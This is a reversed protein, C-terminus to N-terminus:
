RRRFSLRLNTKVDTVGPIKPEERGAEQALDYQEKVWANFTASHISAMDDFRGIEKLHNFCTIKDEGQPLKATFIHSVSILGAPAKYSTLNNEMLIDLIQKNTSEIETTVPALTDEMAAKKDRLVGLKEVLDNVDTLTAEKEAQPEGLSARLDKLNQELITM